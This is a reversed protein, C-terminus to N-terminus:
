KKCSIYATYIIFHSIFRKIGKYLNKSKLINNFKFKPHDVFIKARYTVDVKKFKSKLLNLFYAESFHKPHNKDFYKILPSLFSLIPYVVHVSCYFEGDQRLIRQAESIVQNPNECHDLVNTSFVYHIKNDELPIKEGPAEILKLHDDEKLIKISEKYFKMLPDIGFIKKINIDKKKDILTLGKIIGFPGCGIDAIIKESFNYINLKHRTLVEETFGILAEDDVKNYMENDNNLYIDTWFKKENIQAEQWNKAM